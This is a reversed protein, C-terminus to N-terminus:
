DLFLGAWAVGAETLPPRLTLTERFADNALQYQSTGHAAVALQYTQVPDDLDLQNADSEKITEDFLAKAGLVDGLEHRVEGLATRIARDSPHDKALQELDARADRTRGTIRRLDDFVLHAEIAQADKGQALPAITAEAGAYDGTAIQARGLLLRAAPRDKGTVKGLEAIAAKYEGATLKDRGTALDARAVRGATMAVVLALGLRKCTMGEFRHSPPVGTLGWHYAGM